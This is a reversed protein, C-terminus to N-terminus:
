DIVFEGNRQIVDGDAELRADESVDVLMDVHRASENYTRDDPVCESMAEGLAVHVTGAMKEDLLVTHTIRDIGPNTGIGIEGLRRAGDDTDLVHRLLAANRSADAEVVTGDDFTLRADRIERGSERVPFDIAVTGTASDVVPVTAVEGGPMNERGDDNLAAMGDISLQLDTREGVVLRLTSADDLVAALTSQHERIADWDVDIADYILDAWAATSMGARQADAPTPHKTIVWRTGDLRERLIPKRARSVAARKAPDVDSLESANTRGDILIAVDAAAMASRDARTPRYDEVDMTRHYARSARQNQWWTRPRAGREGLREYLAVVLDTAQTPAAIIVDDDAGVDTCHDVLLEAHRRIRADM